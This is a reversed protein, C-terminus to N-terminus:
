SAPGQVAGLAVVFKSYRSDDFAELRVLFLKASVRPVIGLAAEKRENLVHGLMHDHEFVRNKKVANLEELM